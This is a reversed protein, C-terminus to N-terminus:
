ATDENVLSAYVLSDRLERIEDDLTDQESLLETPRKVPKGYKKVYAQELKNIIQEMEEEPFDNMELCSYLAKFADFPYSQFRDAYLEVMSWFFPRVKSVELYKDMLVDRTAEALSDISDPQYSPRVAPTYPSTANATQGAAHRRRSLSIDHRNSRKSRAAAHSSILTLVDSKMEAM